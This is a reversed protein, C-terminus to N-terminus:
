CLYSPSACMGLTGMVVGPHSAFRLMIQSRLIFLFDFSILQDRTTLAHDLHLMLLRVLLPVHVATHAMFVIGRLKLVVEKKGGGACRWPATLLVLKPRGDTACSLTVRFCNLGVMPGLNHSLNPVVSLDQETWGGKSENDLEVAWCHEKNRSCVQFFIAASCCQSKERRVCKDNNPKLNKSPCRM